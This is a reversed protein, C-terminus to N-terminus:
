EDEERTCMPRNQQKGLKASKPLCCVCTLAALSCKTLLKKKRLSNKCNYGDSGKGRTTEEAQHHLSAPGHLVAAFAKTDVDELLQGFTHTEGVVKVQHGVPPMSLVNVPLPVAHNSLYFFFFFTNMGM